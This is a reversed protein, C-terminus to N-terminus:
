RNGPAGFSCEPSMGLKQHLERCLAQAAIRHGDANFHIDIPFFAEGGRSGARFAAPMDVFILKNQSRGWDRWKDSFERTEFERDRAGLRYKSPVVFLVATAGSSQIEAILANMLKASLPSIEPDEEVYGGVVLQEVQGSSLLWQIKLQVKRVLRVLYSQRLLVNLSGGSPGPIAIPLGDGDFESKEIFEHDSAIDNSYLQMVVLSPRFQRVLQRWQVLYFIPSYSSVGYNRVDCNSEAAILGVFSSAFPVQGAETFSDGLFAIRCDTVKSPRGKELGSFARGEADYHIHFGGYEESPTHSLFTYNKPHAHHLIPDSEFPANGYGIRALRLGTEVALLAFVLSMILTLIAFFVRKSPSLPASEPTPEAAM